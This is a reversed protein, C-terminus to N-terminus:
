RSIAQATEDRLGQIEFYFRHRKIPVEVGLKKLCNIQERTFSVGHQDKFCRQEQIFRFEEISRDCKTANCSRCCPVLNNRKRKGGQTLPTFHDITFQDKDSGATGIGVM